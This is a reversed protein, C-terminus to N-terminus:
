VDNPVRKSLIRRAIEMMAATGTLTLITSLVLAAVIPLWQKALLDFHVMVGVGAPVFLLSFRDLLANAATDLSPIVSGRVLLTLFLLTMGLVPGPVPLQLVLTAVEGVLEYILLLTIGNLFTM